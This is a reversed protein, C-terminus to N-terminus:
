EGNQSKLISEDKVYYGFGKNRRKRYAKTNVLRAYAVKPRKRIIFDPLDEV